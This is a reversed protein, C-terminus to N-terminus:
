SATIYSGSIIISGSSGYPNTYASYTDDAFFMIGTQLYEQVRNRTTGNKQLVAIATGNNVYSNVAYPLGALSVNGSATFASWGIVAQVYVYRGVKTYRGSQVTYTVSAQGSFGPTWTGEEYDDLANAAATDGNFTIGGSSLIRLREAIPLSNSPATYFSLSHTNYPNDITTKIATRVGEGGSSDGSYFELGGLFDGGSYGAEYNADHELRIVSGQRNAGSTIPGSTSTKIHINKSPSSTGIGVNESADITIATSTANDDIGTSAFNSITGGDIKDGSLGNAAIRAAPLTGTSINSADTTDTTASTALGHSTVSTLAGSLKSTAIAASADVDANAITGDVVSSGTVNKSSNGNNYM